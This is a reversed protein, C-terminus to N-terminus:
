LQFTCYTNIGLWLELGPWLKDLYKQWVWHAPWPTAKDRMWETQWYSVWVVKGGLAQIPPMADVVNGPRNKGHRIPQGLLAKTLWDPVWYSLGRKRRDRGLAQIPPMADVLNGPRTKKINIMLRKVKNSLFSYLFM